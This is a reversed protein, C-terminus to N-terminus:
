PDVLVARFEDAAATDGAADYLKVLLRAAAQVRSHEVPHRERFADYIGRIEALAEDRRDLQAACEAAYMRAVTPRWHDAGKDKEHFAAVKRFLREAEAIEGSTKLAFALNNSSSIVDPHDEGHVAIYIDIAERFLAIAEAVQDRDHLVMALNNIVDAYKPHQEGFNTRYVEIAERYYRAAEALENRAYLLSGLNNKTIAVTVSDPGYIVAYLEAAERYLSEARQADGARRTAYALNNLAAALQDRPPDPLTRMGAISREIAAAADGFEGVQILAWGVQGDLLAVQIRSADRLAALIKQAEALTALSEAAEAEYMQVVGLERLTKVIDIHAKPHVERYLELARRFQTKADAYRALNKYTVGVTFRVIAEVEPYEALDEAIKPTEIDLLEAVTLDHRGYEVDSLASPSTLLRQMFEAVALAKSAEHEAATKAESEAQRAAIAADRQRAASVLGFSTGVLGLVLACVAAAGSLVLPRNRRAFMRLQYFASPPRATIPEKNLYCRLDAAVASASAYRQERDKELCKAVITALDGACQANLTSLRAPSEESIRRAAEALSTNRVDIPLAGGLLEFLVVGLAYVDSRVDTADAAGSIQEPSMYPLTGLIQGERTHLTPTKITPDAVRAVGFDVIRPNGGADVLVNAPKLDRHIVGKQHAHQVADCVRAMLTVRQEITLRAAAAYETIPAGDILELAFYPQPGFPGDVAGTEYIQAIGPHRLRALVEAEVEFRRAAERTLAASRIVKLAVVRTPNSQRARYVVGM